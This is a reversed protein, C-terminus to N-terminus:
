RVEHASVTVRRVKHFAIVKGAHMVAHGGDEVFHQVFHRADVAELADCTARAEAMAPVLHRQIHKAHKEAESDRHENADEVERLAKRLDSVM